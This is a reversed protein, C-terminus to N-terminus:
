FRAQRYTSFDMTAYGARLDDLAAHAGPEAQLRESTAAIHTLLGDFEASQQEAIGPPIRGRWAQLKGPITRTEYGHWAHLYRGFPTNVSGPVRALYTASRVFRGVLRLFVKEPQNSVPLSATLTLLLLVLGFMLATNAVSLFSYTQDNSIGTVVAFFALGFTRALQQQPQHLAYSILFTVAFIVLALQSFGDLLPMLVMYVPSVLLITIVVPMMLMRAPMYPTNALLIAFPALMGLFGYSGPLGPVYIVLLFGACYTIFVRLAQQLRDLDPFVQQEAAASPQAPEEDVKHVPWLLSFVLAYCAIGLATELTRNIALAFANVPDPGGNSTIVATVFGACFWFYAGRGASMRYACLALWAALSLMFLWRDQPFLAILALSVPAALLTGKLRQGHAIKV